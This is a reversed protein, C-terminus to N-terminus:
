KGSEKNLKGEKSIRSRSFLLIERRGSWKPSKEDEIWFNYRPELEREERGEEKEM